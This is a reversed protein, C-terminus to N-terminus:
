TERSLGERTLGCLACPQRHADGHGHDDLDTGVRHLAHQNRTLAAFRLPTQRGRQAHAGGSRPSPTRTRYSGAGCRRAPACPRASPRRGRQLSVSSLPPSSSPAACVAESSCPSRSSTWAAGPGRWSSSPASASPLTARGARTRPAAPSPERLVLHEGPDKPAQCGSPYHSLGSVWPSPWAVLKDPLRASQRGPFPLQRRSDLPLHWCPLGPSTATALPPWTVRTELAEEEGQTRCRVNSVNLGCFTFPQVATM